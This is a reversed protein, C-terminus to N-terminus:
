NLKTFGPKTLLVICVLKVQGLKSSMADPDHATHKMNRIYKDKGSLWLTRDPISTRVM